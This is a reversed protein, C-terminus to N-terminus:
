LDHTTWLQRSRYGNADLYILDRRVALVHNGLAVDRLKPFLDAPFDDDDRDWNVFQELLRAAGHGLSERRPNM